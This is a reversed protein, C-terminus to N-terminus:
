LKLIGDDIHFPDPAESDIIFFDREDIEFTDNKNSRHGSLELLSPSLFSRPSNDHGVGQQLGECEPLPTACAPTLVAAQQVTTSTCVCDDERLDPTFKTNSSAAACDGWSNGRMEACEARRWTATPIKPHGVLSSHSPAKLQQWQQRQLALTSFEPSSKKSPKYDSPLPIRIYFFTM